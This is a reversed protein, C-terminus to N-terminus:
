EEKAAKGDMVASWDNGDVSIEFTFVYTTPSLTKVIFRTKRIDGGLHQEGTWTWTNGEVRGTSHQVEGISNFEDYTYVKRSTDYGMYAMGTGDGLAPSEFESRLTLFFGGDMWRYHESLTMKGGAGLLGPKLHGQSNWKGVFYELKELEPAPKPIPVPMKWSEFRKPGNCFCEPM